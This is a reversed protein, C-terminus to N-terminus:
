GHSLGVDWDLNSHDLSVNWPAAGAGMILVCLTGLHSQGLGWM